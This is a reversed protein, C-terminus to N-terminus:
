EIGYYIQTWKEWLPIDNELDKLLTFAARPLNCGIINIRHNCTVPGARCVGSPIQIHSSYHLRQSDCLGPASITGVGPRQADTIQPRHNLKAHATTNWWFCIQSRYCKCFLDWTKRNRRPDHWQWRPAHTPSLHSLTGCNYHFRVAHARCLSGSLEVLNVETHLKGPPSMTLCSFPLGRGAQATSLMTSPPKMSSSPPAASATQLPLFASPRFSSGPILGASVM